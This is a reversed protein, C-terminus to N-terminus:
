GKELVDHFLLLIRATDEQALADTVQFFYDYDLVNLNEVVSQYSLNKNSFSVLQDFMSLADRLGGDAKQAVLHLADADAVVQEARAIQQLHQAIDDVKIR